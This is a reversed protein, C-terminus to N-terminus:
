PALLRGRLHVLPGAEGLQVHELVGTVELSWGVTRVDVLRAGAWTDSATPRPGWATDTFGAPDAFPGGPAPGLGAFVEVLRRQVATLVSVTFRGERQLVATLDADPDLLGLVRAPDGPAVLVSSVTLGVRERGAGACWLTVPAPLRGRLRRADDRAGPPDAFPNSTHITM